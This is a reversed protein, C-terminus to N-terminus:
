FRELDLTVIIVWKYKEMKLGNDQALLHGMYQFCTMRKFLHKKVNIFQGRHYKKELRSIQNDYMRCYFM